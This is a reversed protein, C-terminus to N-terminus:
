RTYSIKNLHTSTPQQHQPVVQTNSTRVKAEAYSIELHGVLKFFRPRSLLRHVPLFFGALYSNPALREKGCPRGDRQCIAAAEKFYADARQQDVQAAAPNAVCLSLLILGFWSTSTIHSGVPVGVRASGKSLRSVVTPTSRPAHECGVGATRAPSFVLFGLPSIIAGATRDCGRRAHPSVLAIPQSNKRGVM